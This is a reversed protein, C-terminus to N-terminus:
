KNEKKTIKDLFKQNSETERLQEIFAETREENGLLDVMRRMRAIAKMKEQGFLLEEKRTGSMQIDIAPFIRREALSRALHLEMNGTGKFEEYILDDMRSDTQVLATGIITLSGGDEINRAAGLFQKAPALAAPDFGGSLTRGSTPTSLNYARALRTISDLIVFVNKGQEVLRKARELAIEATRTQHKPSEDFNSAVVEGKVSRRIDTVEEPREGILIAMLHMDPYNESVGHAVDKLLWTKGAKPPSVIMGRQGFGIPSILDMMRTTLVDSETELKIQPQPYIPTLQDFWERDKLEDLPNDNVKEVKLLGRYRENEKPQRVQGGVLDGERLKFRRIQSNSIYIDDPSPTFNPRLFGHGRPKTDLVGEGYETPVDADPIEKGDIKLPKSEKDSSDKKKDEKSETKLKEEASLDDATIIKAGSDEQATTSKDKPSM